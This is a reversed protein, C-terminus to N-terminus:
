RRAHPRSSGSILGSPWGIAITMIEAASLARPLSVEITNDTTEIKADAVVKAAPNFGPFHAAPSDRTYVTTRAPVVGTPLVVVVHAKDIPYGGDNVKWYLEDFTTANTVHYRLIVDRDEDIPWPTIWIGLHIFETRRRRGGTYAEWRLPQGASDTASLGSYELEKGGGGATKHRYLGRNIKSWRGTFRLSLRETVDLSGDSNVTLVVDLNRILLSRDQACGIGPLSLALAGVLLFAQRITPLVSPMVYIHRAAM